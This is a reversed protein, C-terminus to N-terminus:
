RHYSLYNYIYSHSYRGPAHSASDIWEHLMLTLYGAFQVRPIEDEGPYRVLFSMWRAPVVFEDDSV